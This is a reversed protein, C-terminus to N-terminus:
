LDFKGKSKYLPLTAMAGLIFVAVSLLFVNRVATLAIVGALLPGIIQGMSVYSQNIGLTGGQDEKNTRESLLATVMPLQPASTITFLLVMLIFGYYSTTFFFGVSVLASAFLAITLLKKKSPIVKQLLKIGIAQMLINFLGSVGFLLGINTPTLHLTDVTFSQFAIIWGSFGASALLSVVLILGITPSFLATVYHKLNFLAEKRIKARAKDATSVTEKLFAMAAFTALLALGSAFWFPFTIEIQSLVGGLAPGVLFGFGFAAGLMGFYKAREKVPTSDAIVAQAVSINGGTVGDIVRAAFMVPVSRALAFMALSVSTGFISFVLLPKRGYRDSLRGIIPTAILQAASFSAFLISLAFPTIGFRLAYPYMLPIIIGYALANILMIFALTYISKSNKM